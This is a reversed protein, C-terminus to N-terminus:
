SAKKRRKASHLETNERHDNSDKQLVTLREEIRQLSGEHRDVKEEIRQL